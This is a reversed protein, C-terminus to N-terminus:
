FVAFSLTMWKIILGSLSQLVPKCAATGLFAEAAISGVVWCKKWLGAKHSFGRRKLRDGFQSVTASRHRGSTLAANHISLAIPIVISSTSTCQVQQQAPRTLYLSLSLALSGTLLSTRLSKREQAGM